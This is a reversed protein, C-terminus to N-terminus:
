WCEKIYEAYRVFGDFLWRSFREAHWGQSRERDLRCRIVTGDAFAGGFVVVLDAAGGLIGLTLGQDGRDHRVVRDLFCGGLLFGRVPIMWHPTEQQEM